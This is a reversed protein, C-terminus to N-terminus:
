SPFNLKAFEGYAIKAANDRIIAAEIENKFYGLQKHKKNIYVSASWTGSHKHLNVGIYKSTGFASKRNMANQSKTCIRLNDKQNNLSCHDIHDVNIKPDTVGLLSRSMTVTKIKGSLMVGRVPAVYKGNTSVRASWKYQMLMDYDEDDVVTIYGKTLQIFKM